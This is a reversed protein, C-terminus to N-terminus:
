RNVPPTTPGGVYLVQYDNDNRSIQDFDTWYNRYYWLKLLIACISEFACMWTGFIQTNQLKKGAAIDVLGWFANVTEFVRRKLWWASFDDLFQSRLASNAISFISLYHLIFIWVLVRKKWSHPADCCGFRNWGFEARRCGLVYNNSVIDFDTWPEPLPQLGFSPGNIKTNAELPASVCVRQSPIPQTWMDAWGMGACRTHTFAGYCPTYQPATCAYAHQSACDRRNVAACNFQARHRVLSPLTFASSSSSSSLCLKYRWCWCCTDDTIIRRCRASNSELWGVALEGAPTRVVQVGKPFSLKHSERYLRYRNLTTLRPKNAALWRLMTCKENVSPFLVCTYM